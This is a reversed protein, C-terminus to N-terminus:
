GSWDKPIETIRAPKPLYVKRRIKIILREINSELDKGFEEKTVKDIGVAKNGDLLYYLEILFKKDIIYGINNFIIFPNEASLGRLRKLKTLESKGDNSLVTM